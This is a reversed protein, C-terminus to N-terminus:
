WLPHQRQKELLSVGGRKRRSFRRSTKLLKFQGKSIVGSQEEPSNWVSM